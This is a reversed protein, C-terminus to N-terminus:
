RRYANYRELECQNIFDRRGKLADYASRLDFTEHSMQVMPYEHFYENGIQNRRIGFALDRILKAHFYTYLQDPLGLVENILWKSAVYPNNTEILEHPYQHLRPPSMWTESFPKLPRSLFYESWKEVTRDWSGYHNEFNKRIEKGKRWILEHPLNAFKEFVKIIEEKSLYAKDAGTETEKSITAPEIKYGGLKNLIDEPASYNTAAIMSGCAAAEVIPMGFGENTCTHVYVDMLNYVKALDADSIGREVNCLSSSVNKCNRCQSIIAQFPKVSFQGCSSCRYTFYIRNAYKSKLLAQIDWGADPYSTHCLLVVPLEPNRDCFESFAQFLAPFLKRKQNRGVFGFVTQGALGYESKLATRNMPVYLPSAVPPVSTIDIDGMQKKLVDAGWDTYSFLKDCEAYTETWQRHQPASDVTPMQAWYFLNFFPSRRQFETAWWDRIDVVFDPAFSICTREFRWAGFANVHISDFEKRAPSDKSPEAPYIKWPYNEIYDSDDQTHCSLQAIEFKGTKALATLVNRTYVSYGTNLSPSECVWLIRPKRKM